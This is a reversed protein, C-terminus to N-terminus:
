MRTAKTPMGERNQGILPSGNTKIRLRDLFGGNTWRIRLAGNECAWKGTNRIEGGDIHQTTNDSFIDVKGYSDWQWKGIVLACNSSFGGEGFRTAVIILNQQNSGELKEGNDKITLRDSWGTKTWEIKLVDIECLWKGTNRIEGGEIHETTGDPFIFVTGYTDWKWEGVVKSCLTGTNQSSAIFPALMFTSLILIVIVANTAQNWL